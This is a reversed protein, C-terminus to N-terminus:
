DFGQVKSVPQPAAKSVACLYCFLSYDDKYEEPHIFLAQYDPLEASHKLYDSNGSKLINNV